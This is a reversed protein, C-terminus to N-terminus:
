MELPKMALMLTHEADKLQLMLETVKKKEVTAWRFRTRTAIKGAGDQYRCAKQIKIVVAWTGKLANNLGVLTRETVVLDRDDILHDRVENLSELLMRMTTVKASVAALEEPADECSRYLNTTEEGVLATARILTLCAAAGGLSDM